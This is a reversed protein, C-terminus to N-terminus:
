LDELMLIAQDILLERQPMTLPVIPADAAAEAASGGSAEASRTARSRREGPAMEPRATPLQKRLERMPTFRGAAQKVRDLMEESSMPPRQAAAGAIPADPKDTSSSRSDQRDAM